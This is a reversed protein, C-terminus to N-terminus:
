PLALPRSAPTISLLGDELRLALPVPEATPAPRLDDPLYDMTALRQAYHLFRHCGVTDLASGRAAAVVEPLRFGGPGDAQIIEASNVHRHRIRGPFFRAAFHRYLVYESAGTWKDPAATALFAQWLPVRHAHRARRALDALVLRDFMMHHQMGSYADVPSWGPVLRAAAEVASHRAPLRHELTGPRWSLPYGYPLLSRGRVDTFAVDHLFAFDAGVVLVRDPVHAPLTDFCLLKVVQQFYWSANSADRGLAHLFAGIDRAGPSCGREDRWVVPAGPVRFPPDPAREAVVLVLAVPNRCHTLVGEVCLGLGPLDKEAALILVGIPPLGGGGAGECSAATM